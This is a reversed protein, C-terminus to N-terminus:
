KLRELNRSFENFMILEESTTAALRNRKDTIMSGAFSNHREPESSSAQIVYVSKALLSLNTKKDKWFEAPNDYVKDIKMKKFEYYQELIPSITKEKKPEEDLPDMDPDDVNKQVVVVNEDAIEEESEIKEICLKDFRKQIMEDFNVNEFKSGFNETNKFIALSKYNPHLAIALM